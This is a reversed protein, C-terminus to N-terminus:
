EEASSGLAGYKGSTMKMLCSTAQAWGALSNIINIQPILNISIFKPNELYAQRLAECNFRFEEGELSPPENSQESLAM